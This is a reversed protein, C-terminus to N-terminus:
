NTIKLSQAVVALIEKAVTQNAKLTILTKPTTIIATPNSANIGILMTGIPTTVSTYGDIRLNQNPASQQTVTVAGSQSAITYFLIDNQFSVSDNKLVFGDPLTTPYYLSFAAKKVYPELPNQPKNIALFVGCVLAMGLIIFLSIYLKKHSKKPESKRTRGIDSDEVTDEQTLYNKVGRM